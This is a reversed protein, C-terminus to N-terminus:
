MTQPQKKYARNLRKITLKKTEPAPVVMSKSNVMAVRQPDAFKRETQPAQHEEAQSQKKMKNSQKKPSTMETGADRLLTRSMNANKRIHQKKPIGM